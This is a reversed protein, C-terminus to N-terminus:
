VAGDDLQEDEDADALAEMLAAEVDIETVAPPSLLPEQGGFLNVLTVPNWKTPCTNSCPIIDDDLEAAWAEAIWKVM